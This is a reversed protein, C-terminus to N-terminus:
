SHDPGEKSDEEPGVNEPKVPEKDSKDGAWDTEPLYPKAREIEARPTPIAGRKPSPMKSPKRENDEEKGSEPTQAM